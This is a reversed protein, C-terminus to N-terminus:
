ASGHPRVLKGTPTRALPADAFEVDAITRGEGLDISRAIRRARSRQSADAPDPVRLRVGIRGDAVFVRAEEIVDSSALAREVPEPALKTGDPLILLDDVRGLTWLFGDRDIRGLDGTHLWGPERDAGASRPNGKVSGDKQLYGYTVNEGRVLIEGDDSVAIRNCSLAIGCSGDKSWRDRNVTVCPSCETLGYCGYAEIGLARMGECTSATLGAGGCLMKELSGGTIRDLYARREGITEGHANALSLLRDAFLPPVDLATPAFGALEAFAAHPDSPICITGGTALPALLDCTLGFAHTVPIVSVYRAHLSFTYKQLGALMNAWIGAQTLVIAKPQATTGSSQMVVLPSDSGISDAIRLVADRSAGVTHADPAPAGPSDAILGALARGDLEACPSLGAVGAAVTGRVPVIAASISLVACALYGIAFLYPDSCRLIVSANELPALREAARSVADNLQRYTVSDARESAKKFFTEGAHELSREFAHADGYTRAAYACLSRASPIAPTPYDPYDGGRAPTNDPLCAQLIPTGLPEQATRRPDTM